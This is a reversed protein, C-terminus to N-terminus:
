KKLIPIRELKEENLLNWFIKKPKTRKDCQIV